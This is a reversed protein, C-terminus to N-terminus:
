SRWLPVNPCGSAPRAERIAALMAQEAEDAVLMKDDAALTVIPPM